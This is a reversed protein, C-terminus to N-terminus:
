PAVDITTIAAEGNVTVTLAATGPRLATVSGAAPDVAVIASSDAEGVPGVFVGDGGWRASMPWAVPVLRGDDQDITAVVEGAAGVALSEPATLTIEDVRARNEALLWPDDGDGAGASPDVGLMAWGTFGGDAPSGAPDKGSNGVVLYPVGDLSEAHFVGAHGGVYAASKGSTARFDALWTEVMAAELRDGLQSNAAPLPDNPPHHAFVLVGTIDVAEAADELARRLELVQDFEDGGARLTGFASNLTIIRTAGVDVTYQTAGFEDIFNQLPGGQVEHNGPVYYWPFDAEALEEDLVTRALDFDEPAAEDVLDGNIILVDPEAAVIEQFTRRAAAVIDSDPDRGVFQADNTVAVLLPSDDVPGDAVVPDPFRVLEPLDVDPALNVAIESFSTAGLYSEDGTQVAYVDRFTLPFATGEPVPFTLQEWGTFTTFGGNLTVLTGDADIVRMRIWTGNGDGEVWATIEQPQGPLVFQEPPTAYAARTNGAETVFDYTLRVGPQGDPGEIVEIDGTARAFEITWDAADEFDAVIETALGVAVAVQTSIGAVELTLLASTDHELGSLVLDSGDASVEIVGEGGSVDIDAAEIPAAYGALDFGTLRLAASTETDPLVVLTSSPELRRLDGLVTVDLTGRARREFATVTTIGPEVGTLSVTSGTSRLDLDIVRRDLTRWRPSADVAAYTEDHGLATLTRTLGPFVRESEATVQLRTLRGSGDATFLNLGNAVAREEGDSPSNVAALQDTAPTRTVLTSSGGGDLNLAQEAGLDAMFEALETLSMGRAHTQRGDIVVLFMTQGDDALGIASRPHVDGEDGFDQPEGDIVLQHSGGLAVAVEGFDARPAYTVDIQSSTSLQQLTLAGAGRGLLVLEDEDIPGEGPEDAIDVVAGDVLTLETVTSADGVATTRPYEGWTSTYLGIGDEPIVSTNVGSLDASGTEGTATGDLLVEALHAVGTHDVAIANTHGGIPSTVMGDARDVGVGTPAFSRDIDFFDGNIAATAGSAEAMERVTAPESVAGSYAYDLNLRDTDLDAVLVSGATWGARDLRSFTTLELGPAIESADHETILSDATEGLDLEIGPPAAPVATPAATGPAVLLLPATVLVAAGLAASAVTRRRQPTTPVRPIIVNGM